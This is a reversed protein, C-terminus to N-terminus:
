GVLIKFLGVQYNEHFKKNNTIKLRPMNLFAYSKIKV